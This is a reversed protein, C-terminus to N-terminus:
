HASATFTFPGTEDVITYGSPIQFLSAEPDGEQYDPISDTTNVRLGANKM